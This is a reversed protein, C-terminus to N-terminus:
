RFSLRLSIVDVAMDLKVLLCERHFIILVASSYLNKVMDLDYEDQESIPKIVTGLAFSGQPYITIKYDPTEKDMWNGLKKYYEEAQDFLNENIDIAQAIREYIANLDNKTYM